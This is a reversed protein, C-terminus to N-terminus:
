GRWGRQRMRLRAAPCPGARCASQESTGWLGGRPLKPRAGACHRTRVAAPPSALRPRLPNLPSRLVPFLGQRPSETYLPQLPGQGFIHEPCLHLASCRHAGQRWYMAGIILGLAITFTFRVTNYFPSRWYTLSFGAGPSPLVRTLSLLVALNCLADVALPQENAACSIM